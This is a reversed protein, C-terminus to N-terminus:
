VFLCVFCVFLLCVPGQFARLFVCVNVLLSINICAFFLLRDLLCAFASVVLGCRGWLCRAASAAPRGAFCVFLCVFAVFLSAVSLVVLCVLMVNQLMCHLNCMFLLAVVFCGVFLCAFVGGFFSVVLWGVLWGGFLCM